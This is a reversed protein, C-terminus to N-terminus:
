LYGGEKLKKYFIDYAVLVKAYEGLMEAAQVPDIDPMPLGRLHIIASERQEPSGSLWGDMLAAAIEEPSHKLDEESYMSAFVLQAGLAAKAKDIDMM